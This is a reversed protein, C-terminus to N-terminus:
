PSFGDATVDTVNGSTNTAVSLPYAVDVMPNWRADINHTLADVEVDVPKRRTFAGALGFLIKGHVGLILGSNVKKSYGLSFERYYMTNVGPNRTKMGVGVYQTNGDTFLSLLKKPFFVKTEVRESWAFNFYQNRDYMFGFSVPTYHVEESVFDWRHLGAVLTNLNAIESGNAVDGYSFGTSNVNFHISSLLPVGVYTPCQIQVAPNTFNSQPINHLMFLTNDQQACAIASYTFLLILLNVIRRLVM